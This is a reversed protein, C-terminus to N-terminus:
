ELLISCFAMWSRRSTVFKTPLQDDKLVQHQQIDEQPIEDQNDGTPNQKHFFAIAAILLSFIELVLSLQTIPVTLLILAEVILEALELVMEMDLSFLQQLAQFLQNPSGQLILSWYVGM